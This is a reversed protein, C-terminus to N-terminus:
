TILVVDNFVYSVDCATFVFARKATTANMLTCICISKQGEETRDRASSKHCFHVSLTTVYGAYMRNSVFLIRVLNM